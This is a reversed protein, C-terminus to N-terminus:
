QLPEGGRELWARLETQLKVRAETRQREAFELERALEEDTAGHRILLDEFDDIQKAFIEDVVATTKALAEEITM